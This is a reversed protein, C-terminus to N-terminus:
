SGGAVDVVGRGPTSSPVAAEIEDAILAWCVVKALKRTHTAVFSGADFDDAASFLEIREGLCEPEDRGTWRCRTVREIGRARRASGRADM